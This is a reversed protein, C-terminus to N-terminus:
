RRVADLRPAPRAGCSLMIRSRDMSDIVCEQGPRFRGNVDDSAAEQLASKNCHTIRRDLVAAWQFRRLGQCSKAIKNDLLTVLVFLELDM